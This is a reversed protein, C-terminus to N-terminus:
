GRASRRAWAWALTGGVLGGLMVSWQPSVLHVLPGIVAGCALAIIGQRTRTEGTLILLFYLPGVFVLGQRVLPPMSDALAFGAGTAALCAMWNTLAFGIFWAFRHAPAVDPFRRM